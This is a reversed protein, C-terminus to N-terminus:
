SVSTHGTQDYKEPYQVPTHRIHADPDAGDPEWASAASRSQEQQTNMSNM